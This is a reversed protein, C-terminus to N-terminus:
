RVAEAPPERGVEAAADTSGAQGRGDEEVLWRTAEVSRRVFAFRAGLILAEQKLVRGEKDVWLRCRPEDGVAGDERYTVVDVRILRNDWFLIDEPGVEAALLELPSRAARLPNYMPVRWRRGPALGPLMAQPAFEDGLTFGAPLRQSFDYRLSGARVIMELVGATCTGDLAITERAAPISVVSSFRRLQGAADIELRGRTEIETAANRPLGAPMLATIWGPVLERVPLRDLRLRTSVTLGGSSSREFQTLAWGVPRENWEVTWGVPAPAVDSDVAAEYGPPPGSQLAPLIKTMVLWGSTVSWLLLTFGVFWPRFLM